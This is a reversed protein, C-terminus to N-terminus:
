GAGSGGGGAAAGGAGGGHGAPASSGVFTAFARGADDDGAAVFWPPAAAPHKRLYRAWQYGLGLGIGYVDWRSRIASPGSVERAQTVDKLYRKFGRWRASQMLGADSLPTTAAAIVVGVIGAAALGLPLLFPWGDYRPILPAVGICALGAAFLMAVAVATLRSRVARRSPDLLGREELDNNLAQSFRRGNRALRARARSMTVEDGSGAFALTLAEIEHDALDHKGPVQTLEYQPVGFRRPLERVTLVGRDALDLLTAVSQYGIARGKSALTAAMAVPLTEPPETSTAQPGMDFGPSDYGQRILLLLLVGGIFLAGAGMAWRPALAAAAADQAQWAPASSVLSGRPYSLEATTWGNEGVPGTTLTGVKGSWATKLEATKRSEVLPAGLLAEPAAISARTADIRYRHESPLLRWRVVDRDPESYAVGRALYHLAFTHVSAGVEAFQWEVRIRNRGSVTIHGPGDGRPLAVGDMRAELIEIGDTRATPIDRWVRKFVGSQFEFVITEAVDLHGEVGRADVDCRQAKYKGPGAAAASRPALLALVVLLAWVAGHGARDCRTSLSAHMTM